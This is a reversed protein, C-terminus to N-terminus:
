EKDINQPKSSPYIPFKTYGKLGYGYNKNTTVFENNMMENLYYRNKLEVVQKYSADQYKYDKFKPRNYLNFQVDMDFQPTYYEKNGLVNNRVYFKIKQDRVTKQNNISQSQLNIINEFYKNNENKDAIKSHTQNNKSKISNSKSSQDKESKQIQQNLFHQQQQISSKKFQDISDVVRNEDHQFNRMKDPNAQNSQLLQPTSKFQLEQWNAYQFDAFLPNRM